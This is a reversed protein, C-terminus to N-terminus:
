QLIGADDFLETFFEVSYIKNLPYVRSYYNKKQKTEGVCFENYIVYIYFNPDAFPCEYTNIYELVWLHWSCEDEWQCKKLTPIESIGLKLFEIQLLNEIKDLDNKSLRNLTGGLEYSLHKFFNLTEGYIHITHPELYKGVREQLDTPLKSLM